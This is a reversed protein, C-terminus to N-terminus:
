APLAAQLHRWYNARIADVEVLQDCLTRARQSAEKHGEQAKLTAVDLLYTLAHPPVPEEEEALTHAVAVVQADDLRRGMAKLAGRIYNWASENNPSLKIRALVYELEAQQHEQQAFRGTKSLVFYRHNWASNNWVDDTLLKDVFALSQGGPQDLLKFHEMAWHRHTWAHYNKADHALMNATFAMEQSGDDLMEVVAQRHYWVQYNKLAGEIVDGIYTLEQRLDAGELNRLIHRRYHWVSYNGKNMEIVAATVALARQSVEQAKNLARFYDMADKFEATYAIPCAPAPGDDQPLPTVDAYRPDESFM